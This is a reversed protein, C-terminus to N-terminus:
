RRGSRIWALVGAIVDRLRVMRVKATAEVEEDALYGAQQKSMKGRAKQDRAKRDALWVKNGLWKIGGFTLQPPAMHAFPYCYAMMVRIDMAATGEGPNPGQFRTPQALSICARRRHLTDVAM